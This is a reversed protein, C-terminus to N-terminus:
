FNVANEVLPAAVKKAPRTQLSKIWDKAPIEIMYYCVISVGILIVLYGYFFITENSIHLRKFASLCFNRIPYQLIYMGYSAEGLIVLYKNSFAKTIIGSNLSILLILPAFIVAMLGDHFNFTPKFSLLILLASVVAIVPLDFNRNKGAYRLYIYGLINGMMFQNLHLIPWYFLFNHSDSPFGKYFPSLFLYNVTVQSIIWFSIVSAFVIKTSYKSYVYNFLIPFALYFFAEVSLSWGPSNLKLVLPLYWSQLAFIQLLVDKFHVDHKSLQTIITLFLAFIYLPYIRAIRNIYYAKANITGTKQKGYAIIMVFGSLIFFYSVGVNAHSFIMKLVGQNFPYIKCDSHYIVISLAALFRTFTLQNLKM